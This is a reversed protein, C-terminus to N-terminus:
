GPFGSLIDRVLENISEPNIHEATFERESEGRWILRRAGADMVNILLTKSLTYRMVMDAKQPADPDNPNVERLGRENLVSRAARVFLIHFTDNEFGTLSAGETDGGSITYASLKGFDYGKESARQINGSPRCGSLLALALVSIIISRLATQNLRIQMLTKM